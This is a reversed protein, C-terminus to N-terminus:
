RSPSAAAARETLWPSCGSRSSAPSTRDRRLATGYPALTVTGVVTEGGGSEECPLTAVLLMAERARRSADGLQTGYDDDADLLRDALYVEATLAGAAAIEDPRAMRVTPGTARAVKM